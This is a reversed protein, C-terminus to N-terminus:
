INTCYQLPHLYSLFHNPIPLYCLCREPQCVKDVELYRGRQLLLRGKGLMSNFKGRCILILDQAAQDLRARTAPSAPSFPEVAESKSPSSPRIANLMEKKKLLSDYLDLSQEFKGQEALKQAENIVNEIGFKVVWPHQENYDRANLYDVTDKILHEGHEMNIKAYRRLTIGLNGKANITGPHDAGGTKEFAEIALNHYNIAEQYDQRERLLEALNNLTAGVAIDLDGLLGRRLRLAEMLLAQAKDLDGMQRYVMGLNNMIEATLVHDKGFAGIAIAMAEDLVAKAAEAQNKQRLLEAYNIFVPILAPSNDGFKIRRLEISKMYLPLARDLDGSLRAEEATDNYILTSDMDDMSTKIKPPPDHMHSVADYQKRMLLNEQMHMKPEQTQSETVARAEFVRGIRYHTDIVFEDDEGLVEKAIEWALQYSKQANDFEGLSYYATGLENHLRATSAHREGHLMAENKLEAQLEAITKM